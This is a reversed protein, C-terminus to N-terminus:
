LVKMVLGKEQLSRDEEQQNGMGDQKQNFAQDILSHNERVMTKRGMKETGTCKQEIIKRTIGSKM